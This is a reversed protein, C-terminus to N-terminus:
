IRSRKYSTNQTVTSCRFFRYANSNQGADGYIGPFTAAVKAEPHQIRGLLSADIGEFSSETSTLIEHVSKGLLNEHQTLIDTTTQETSTIEQKFTSRPLYTYQYPDNEPSFALQESMNSPIQGDFTTDDDIQLMLEGATLILLTNRCAGYSDLCREDGLIAFKTIVESVGADRATKKALTIRDKRSFCKIQVSTAPKLGDIIERNVTDYGPTTSNDIILIRVNRNFASVHKLVSTLCRKLADPRNHTPIGISTIM